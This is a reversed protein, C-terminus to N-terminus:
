RPVLCDVGSNLDIIDYMLVITYVIILPALRTKAKGVTHSTVEWQNTSCHMRSFSNPNSSAEIGRDISRPIELKEDKYQVVCIRRNNERSCLHYHNRHDKQSRMWDFYMFSFYSVSLAKSTNCSRRTIFRARSITCSSDGEREM